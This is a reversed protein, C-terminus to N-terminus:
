DVALQEFYLQFAKEKLYEILASDKQVSDQMPEAVKEFYILFDKLICVESGDFFLSKESM